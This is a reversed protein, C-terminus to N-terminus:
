LTMKSKGATLVGKDAPMDSGAIVAPELPTNCEPAPAEQSCYSYRLTLQMLGAGLCASLLSEFADPEDGVETDAEEAPERQFSNSSLLQQDDGVVVAQRARYIAGIADEVPLLAAEDFVVLDFTIKEPHLLSSVSQPSMLMCPKLRLLLKPIDALLRALTGPDDNQHAERLLLAIEPDSAAQSVQPRRSDVLRLARQANLGLLRRELDRFEAVIGEHDKGRFGELAPDQQFITELWDSVAAKTFVDALRDRPPREKELGEWFVSLGLQAFREGVHRWDVWDALEGVRQRLTEIRQRLGEPALEAYRRGHITPGPPEFRNELAHLAQDLQEKAHRLERSSPAASAGGSAVKIFQESLPARVETKFLERVRTTWSLEKRLAKWDTVVGQFDPGLRSTWRAHDQEQTEELARLEEVQRLDTLLAVADAPPTKAHALIPDAAVAFQNLTAQLNRAYDNLVSLASEELRVGTGPVTDMPLYAKLEDTAHQWAGLSDHLRKLAARIKESPAATAALAEVLRGPLAQCDLNHALEVAEAAIRTAREAADFDTDFRKEYRGLAAQRAPQETDLGAKQRMLDRAALADEWWTEPLMETRSRRRIARRDRRFQPSFVRLWSRYPGALRQAIGDLDLEFLRETYRELLNARRKNFDAFVPRNSAVLKRAQELAGADVIWSREPANEAVCLNALRHLRRLIQVSPDEKSEGARTSGPVAGDGRPLALGLWKELTRAESIWGPIRRQTDAAWGRLQQQHTLLGQGREDGPALLPAVAHWSQEVQARTGAPLRWVDPGYRVTLPERSQGRQRYDAACRELDAALQPLDEATLWSAPPGPSSELADAMRLLWPVTGTAGIKAAYEPAVTALRDIRGRVRELLSSVEDRLKLTFRDEVKFGWWPFDPGQDPIHWLQQLRQMAGHTQALWDPTLAAPDSLGLPIHPLGECRALEELAWRANQGLPERVVHLAQVYANLNTQRQHFEEAGEAPLDGDRQPRENLCRSLEAVVAPQDAKHNHLELCYDGLGVARLRQYVVLLDAVKESVFLVTKGAALRGVILNAITQSKGTGPLGLIVFSHGRAAAELCLRQSADADLIHFTTQPPQHADLDGEDPLPQGALEDGIGEGALARVLPHAAVSEANEELDRYMAGNLNNRWRALAAALSPSPSAM